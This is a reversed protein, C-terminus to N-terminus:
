DADDTEEMEGCSACKEKTSGAGGCKQCKGGGRCKHCAKWGDPRDFGVTRIKGSGSCSSCKGKGSCVFCRRDKKGSGGCRNCKDKLSEEFAAVNELKGKIHKEYIANKGCALLCAASAKLFEQQREVNNTSMGVQYLTGADKANPSAKAITRLESETLTTKKPVAKNEAGFACVAAMICVIALATTKMTEGRQGSGRKRM